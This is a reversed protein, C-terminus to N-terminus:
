RAMGQNSWSAKGNIEQSQLDGQWGGAIARADLKLDNIRRGFLDLSGAELQISNLPLQTLASKSDGFLAQWQDVDLNAMKGKLHIGTTAPIEASEGLSIEGREIRMSGEQRNRFFRANMVQGLALSITEQQPNLSTKMISLPLVDESKKNFPPPLASAFGVLSSKITFDTQYKGMMFEGTWDVSGQLRNMLPMAVAKRLANGSFKGRASVRLQSDNVNALDFQMGSGFIQASLGKGRLSTDTFDLKGSIGEIMPSDASSSYRVNDALYSGKVKTHAGEIGLPILLDLTLKGNGGAQMKEIFSSDDAALPSNKVLNLLADAPSNIDASIFVQKQLTKLHPIIITAKNLKNGLILGQNANLELRDGQVLMDTSYHTLKPWHENYNIEGEHIKGKIQLFGQQNNIWPFAEPKGKVIFSIDKFDGAAIANDLWEMSKPRLTLPLYLYAFRGDLQDLKGSFDLVGDKSAKRIYSGTFSASLNQNAIVMNEVTFRTEQNQVRWQVKGDLKDLAVPWRFVKQLDLTAMRSNLHLTGGRENAEISGTFESLGPIKEDANMGLGSFQSHLRYQQPLFRDGKWIMSLKKLKGVPELVALKTKVTEPLPLHVAFARLTELQLEDLQVNGEYQTKGSVIREGLIFRGNKLDLHESSNLTLREAQLQQGDKLKTWILRGSLKKLNIDTTKNTLGIKVDDLFVDSTIFEPKGKVFDLWFRTAGVGQYLNIPYDVWNRWVALDTAELRGYLMGRWQELKRSDRGYIKGRLDIPQTSGASPVARLAFRHQGILQGWAPSQMRFNLQKLFLPPARRLDDQWLM